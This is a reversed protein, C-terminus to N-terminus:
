QQGSSRAKRARERQLYLYMAEVKERAWPTKRLLKLSSNITPENTFCKVNVRQAMHEWGVEAVLETLMQELTIGHLPNKRQTVPIPFSSPKAAESATPNETSYQAPEGGKEAPAIAPNQPTQSM